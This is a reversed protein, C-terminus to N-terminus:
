FDMKEDLAPATSLRDDRMRKVFIEFYDIYKKMSTMKYEDSRKAVKVDANEKEVDDEAVQQKCFSNMDENLQILNPVAFPDFSDLKDVDIPVCINSTKPHACFPSKLLHNVGTSVNVDLRPYCYHLMIEWDLKNVGKMSCTALSKKIAEWKNKISMNEIISKIEVKMTADDPLLSLFDQIQKEEKFLKQEEAFRNFHRDIWYIAKYILPPPNAPFM